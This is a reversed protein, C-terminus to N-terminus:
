TYRCFFNENRSLILSFLFSCKQQKKYDPIMVLRYKHLIIGSEKEREDKSQCVFIRFFDHALIMEFILLERQHNDTM